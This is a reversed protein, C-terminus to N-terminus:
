FTLNIGFMVTRPLPYLGLDIGSAWSADHGFRVEPDMGDYGTITYLNNFSVYLKAGQVWDYKSLMEDFKYGITLNNIRLYDADQMFVDSIFNTNRHSSPSLRPMSNSTGEGHWRDFIKTTYNQDFNDSFSRYSQMVQMGFKGSLTANAYIGKWEVDLQIGLEFDPNPDGIMVKDKVDIVGDNNQDVFKVDGPRAAGGDGLSADFFYTKGANANANGDNDTAPIKWADVAAQNQLIGDTEYAWFYGIPMGVEVRSVESTGQALVSSPGHIIGESNALRTVENKNHSGSVKVGYKVGAVEDRWGLALEIGTNKVDGGNIWPAAAGSTGLIPAIVLWDKTQKDYWDITANLRSNLFQADIGFNLQQSTEWTVDPNPVNAPITTNPSNPKTEGFYYGQNIYAINSSYIFNDISQNGNQGWSARLKGYSLFDYDMFDEESFNWGASFSPFIGWRNGRAFNSSGDARLIADFMYREKLNYSVRGMYSMIGGGQAAWDAGWTNLDSVNVPSSGNNLYAYEPKGFKTGVYSGGVNANLIPIDAVESGALVSIKHDGLQYDYTLTNTWTYSAGQYMSQGVGDNANQFLTGLDYKSSWSHSSGFWTSLGYSSRIKLNKIPEILAYVNGVFDNGKGWNYNHRYFMVALPDTQGTSIGELTPSFGDLNHTDEWYAPMLPNQVLANHLDNWYINGTAVGRNETNTFSLNEGVTLINRNGRKIVVTETNLRATIRKYGADTLDGGIMGTQDFYSVGMSYSSKETAGTINVSHSQVPANEKTMEEVWNTGAWGSQLKDWVYTGYHNKTPYNSYLWNNADLMTQWDNPALGDNTRGEDMIYMYEQANLVPLTKYINQVGFYADYTVQMNATGTIKGKRTTVLVVGNAARSGYIASSAADKLVDISEIDSPNLYDISGRAVGDVIYLPNANGITGLGRIVVRTGSGPAGNDRTISVGPAIGQLAQMASGTNLEQIDDGDVNLNAGTTLKKKMTGYGIVVVEDLGTTEVAMVVNIVSQGNVVIDQSQFSISSFSLTANEGVTITYNGDSDTMVGNSTGKELVTVGPLGLNDESSTVTGSVEMQAFVAVNVLFFALILTLKKM